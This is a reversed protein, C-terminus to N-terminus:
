FGGGGIRDVGDVTGKRFWSGIFARAPLCRMSAASHAWEPLPRRQLTQFMSNDWCLVRVARYLLCWLSGVPVWYSVLLVGIPVCYSVGYPVLLFGIPFWVPFWYSVWESVLSSFLLFGLLFGIPVLYVIM